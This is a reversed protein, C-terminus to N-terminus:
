NLMVAPILPAGAGGAGAMTGAAAGVVVAALEHPAPLEGTM